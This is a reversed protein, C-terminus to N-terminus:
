QPPRVTTSQSVLSRIIRLVVFPELLHVLEGPPKRSPRRRHNNVFAHATEGIGALVQSLSSTSERSQIRGPEIGEESIIRLDLRV